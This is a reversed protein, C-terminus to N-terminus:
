PKAGKEERELVRVLAEVVQPDFQTGCERRLEAIAQEQSRPARYAREHTMSEYADVVALVRGGLPIGEGRLGRPYGTGDWREHHTLILERVQGLYDLPRIIEVSTEPHSALAQIQEFGLAGSGGVRDHLRTMGLDHISAVYGILDAEAEPLGLERSVARALHVLDHGGLLFERKLRTVSQVAEVAETVIRPSEPHAVAREVASAVRDILQSLVSLDDEDFPAGSIKNNVNFVGIVEGQVRLPSCLLSKTKYQPHNLRRFRRDTEINNVLLPQGWAAVSGAVGSRVSTRRGLLNQGELGRSTAIFLDGHDPDVLMLSVIDADMSAALMEVAHNFLERLDARIWVQKAIRRARPSALQRVPMSFCFRTGHPQLPQVWIRGGHLEAIGRAIALGLGTGEIEKENVNRARFFREFVHPVDDPPIGPGEDEVCCSWEEGRESAQIRIKGGVPSFKIANGVLNILLRRLLDPDAEPTLTSEIELDFKVERARSQIQFGDLIERVMGDLGLRALRLPRQGAELRSLDLIDTVLRTLRDCEDNIIGLFRERPAHPNTLNDLMAETYAKIATLPSKIEHAVVSMLSSSAEEGENMRQELSDTRQREEHLSRKLADRELTLAMADALTQAVTRDAATFQRPATFSLLLVGQAHGGSLLPLTVLAAPPDLWLGSERPAPASGDDFTPANDRLAREVPGDSDPLCPTEVGSEDLARLAGTRTDLHLLRYDTADLARMACVGAIACATGLDGTSRLALLAQALLALGEAPAVESATLNRTSVVAM